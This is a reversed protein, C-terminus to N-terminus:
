EGSSASAIRVKEHLEIGMPKTIVWDGRKLEGKVAKVAIIPLRPSSALSEVIVPRVRNDAGVVLIMREAGAQMVASAPVALADKAESVRIYVDAWQGLELEQAPLPFQVEVTMEETTPDAQPSIRFVSGPIPDNARGRLVVTAPQGARIKGSFRQDVYADVMTISPDAITVVPEGPVVADGPRKPLDTVVGSLYTFVRTESLNFEEFKVDAKAAQVEREAARVDAEAANVASAAVRYREDYGDAEEQSVAGAAVLYKERGWARKTQWRTAVREAVAARSAQEAAYAAALRAQARELDRLIDTNELEAILQGQHVFDGQDVFVREIRGPIKAGVRALRDVTVVGSGEVEAPVNRQEVRVVSVEPPTLFKKKVIFFVIVAFLVYLLRKGMKRLGFRDRQQQQETRDM